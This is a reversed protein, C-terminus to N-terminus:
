EVVNVTVEYSLDGCSVTITATGVGRARLTCNSGMMVVSKDSSSFRVPYERPPYKENRSDNYLEFHEGDEFTAYVRLQKPEPHSLSLTFTDKLPEIAVVKPSSISIKEGSPIVTIKFERTLGKYNAVITTTGTKLPTFALGEVKILSSDYDSFSIEGADKIQTINYDTDMWFIQIDTAGADVNARIEHERTSIAIPYPDQPEWPTMAEKVNEADNESTDLEDTAEIKINQFRTAWLGWTESGSGAYAYGIMTPDGPKIHGKADKMIGANHCGAMINTNLESVMTYNYGDNSEYIVICSDASFRRNTAIAIFKDYEEIYAMDASDHNSFVYGDREGDVRELIIGQYEMTAPWNEDTADATALRIQSIRDGQMNASDWTYYIFLTGDKEVFSVEGAGWKTGSEDFYVIPFPDGGWGSGNWKEFPGDPNKSRAVFASNCLGGGYADITSTYGIYYYGNLYIVDPDCVSMEDLSNATPYLVVKEKTWNVGDDSHKYTFWDLDNFKGPSAFWADMSGDENLMIAPGYRYGWTSGETPSFIDYGEDVTTVKLHKDTYDIYPTPAPTPEPSATAAAGSESSNCAGLIFLCLVSICVIMCYKWVTKKRRMIYEGISYKM